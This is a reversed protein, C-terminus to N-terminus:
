RRMRVHLREPGRLIMASPRWVIPRTVAVTRVGHDAMAEFAALAEARALAAGLCFHVGQGFALNAMGRGLVMRDAEEVHRPDRLASALFIQVMAGAPLEASGVRVQQSTVRLTSMAPSHLRLAEEVFDPLKARDRRATEWPDPRHALWAVTNGLLSATTETGAIVLTVLFDVLEQPTLGHHDMGEQVINSVIGGDPEARVRDLTGTVTDIIEQIEALLRRQTRHDDEAVVTAQLITGSWGQLRGALGRDLGLLHCIVTATVPVAFEGMFEVDRDASLVHAHDAVIRRIEPTLRRVADRTFHAGALRRLRTHDPPDLVVLSGFPNRPLWAPTHLSAQRFLDPRTLAFVVDEHRTLLWFGTAGDRVVGQERLRALAPFPDAHHAQDTLDEGTHAADAM